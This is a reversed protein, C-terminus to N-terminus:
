KTIISFAIAIMENAFPYRKQEFAKQAISYIKKAVNLKTQEIESLNGRKELRHILNSLRQLDQEVLAMQFHQTKSQINLQSLKLLLRNAINLRYAAEGYRGEPIANHEIAQVQQEILQILDSHFPVDKIRSKALQLNQRTIELQQRIQQPDTGPKKDMSRYLRMTLRNVLFLKQKAIGYERHAIHTEIQRLLLRARRLIQRFAPNNNVSQYNEFDNLASRLSSLEYNLREKERGPLKETSDLIRYINKQLFKLRKILFPSDESDMKNKIDRFEDELIKLQRLLQKNGTKQVIARSEELLSQTDNLLNQDSNKDINVSRGSIHIAQRAFFQALRFYELAAYPKGKLGSVLARQKFHKARNLMRIAEPVPNQQTAQEAERIINDLKEKFKLRFVPHNKIQRQLQNLLQFAMEIHIKAKSLNRQHYFNQALKYENLITRMREHLFDNNRLDVMLSLLRQTQEIAIQLRELERRVENQRPQAWIRQINGAILFLILFLVIHLRYTKM